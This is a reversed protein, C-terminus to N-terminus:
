VVRVCVAEALAARVFCSRVLLVYRSAEGAGGRGRGAVRRSAEEQRLRFSEAAAVRHQNPHGGGPRLFIDSPTLKAKLYQQVEFSNHSDIM